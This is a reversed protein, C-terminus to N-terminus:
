GRWHRHPTLGARCCWCATPTLSWAAPPAELEPGVALFKGVGGCLVDVRLSAQGTVVTGGRILLLDRQEGHKM